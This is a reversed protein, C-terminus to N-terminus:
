MSISFFLNITGDASFNWLTFKQWDKNMKCLQLVGEEFFLCSGSLELAIELNSVVISLTVTLILFYRDM